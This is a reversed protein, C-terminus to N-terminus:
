WVKFNYQWSTTLQWTTKFQTGTLNQYLPMQFEIAFRQGTLTGMPIILNSSVAFNLRTNGRFDPRHTPSM